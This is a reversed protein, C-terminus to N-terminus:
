GSMALFIRNCPLSYKEWSWQSQSNSVKINNNDTRELLFIYSCLSLLGPTPRRSVRGGRTELRRPREGACYTERVTGIRCYFGEDEVIWQEIM